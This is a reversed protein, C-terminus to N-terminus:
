GRAPRPAARLTFYAGIVLILGVFFGAFALAGTLLAGAAGAGLKGAADLKADSALLASFILGAIPLAFCALGDFLLMGGWAGRPTRALVVILLTAAIATVPGAAAWQADFGFRSSFGVILMALQVGVLFYSLAGMVAFAAIRSVIGM